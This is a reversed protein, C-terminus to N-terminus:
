FPEGALTLLWWVCLRFSPALGTMSFDRDPEAADNYRQLWPVRPLMWVKLLDQEM